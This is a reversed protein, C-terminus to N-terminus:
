ISVDSMLLPKTTTRDGRRGIADRPSAMSIAGPRESANASRRPHNM